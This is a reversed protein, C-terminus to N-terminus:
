YRERSDYANNNKEVRAQSQSVEERLHDAILEALGDLFNRIALSLSHDENM